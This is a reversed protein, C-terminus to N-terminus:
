NAAYQTFPVDRLLSMWYNESIEAAQPRSAFAPAPPQVLAQGDPGQLDFALGSQPNTLGTTGGLPLADFDAPRGSNIATLLANYASLVVTGDNNHPLGKSFNGIKNPYLEEDDNDPHQLNQPTAQLGENAADRRLKACANARQNSSTVANIRSPVVTAAITAASVHTLFKRRNTQM